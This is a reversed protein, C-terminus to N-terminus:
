PASKVPTVTEAPGAAVLAPFDTNQLLEDPACVQMRVPLLLLGIGAPTTAIAVNVAAGPLELVGALRTDFTLTSSAMAADAVPCPIAVLPLPPATVIRLDDGECTDGAVTEIPAKCDWCNVASPLTVHDM